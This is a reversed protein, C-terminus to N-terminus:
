TSTELLVENQPNEEIPPLSVYTEKHAVSATLIILLDNLHEFNCGTKASVELYQCNFDAAFSRADRACTSPDPVLDIKNAVLALPMKPHAAKLTNIWKKAREFSTVSTVDYIAIAVDSNRYYM